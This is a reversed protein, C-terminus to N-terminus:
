GDAPDTRTATFRIRTTAVVAPGVTGAACLRPLTDRRNFAPSFPAQALTWGAEASSLELSLRRGAATVLTARPGDLHPVVGTGLTFGISWRLAASRAAGLLRDEIVIVGDSSVDIMRRHRLGFAGVYGDHEATISGARRDVLGARAHRSWNFPGAITSQDLDELALTNHVRTGRFLDRAPGGSHYLYTGADVIIAEDGWHLWVALADAHGHAAISAFGLPGHDLVFLRTGRETPTRVVSYGGDAFVRCGILGAAPAAPERPVPVLQDRLHPDTAPPQLAPDGLWRSVAAVV